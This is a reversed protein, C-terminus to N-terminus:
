FFMNVEESPMAIVKACFFSVTKKTHEFILAIWCYKAM